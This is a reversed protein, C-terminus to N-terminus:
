KDPVTAVDAGVKFAGSLARQLLGAEPAKVGTRMAQVVLKATEPNSILKTVAANSLRIGGATGAVLGGLGTAHMLPSFGALSWVWGNKSMKLLADSTGHGTEQAKVENLLDRFHSQTEPSLAESYIEKNKGGLEDLVKSANLTGESEKFGGTLLKNLALHEIGEPGAALKWNQVHTIDSLATNAIQKYTQSKAVDGGAEIEKQLQVLQKGVKNKDFVDGYNEFAQEVSPRNIDGTKVKQVAENHAALDSKYKLKAAVNAQKADEIAQATKDAFATTTQEGTYTPIPLEPQIQEPIAPREPINFKNYKSLRKIQGELVNARANAEGAAGQIIQSEPRQMQGLIQNSMEKAAGQRVGPLNRIGRSAMLAARAEPSVFMGAVGRILKPIGSNLILDKGGELAVDPIDTPPDGFIAPWQKKLLMKAASGVGTGVATGLIPIRSGFFSGAVPLSNATLRGIYPAAGPNGEPSLKDLSSKFKELPQADEFGKPLTLVPTADEYGKPLKVPDAM